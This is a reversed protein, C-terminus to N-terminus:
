EMGRARLAAATIALPLDDGAGTASRTSNPDVLVCEAGALLTLETASEILWNNPILMYAADLYAEAQLLAAFRSANTKGRAGIIQRAWRAFAKDRECIADWAMALLEDHAAKMSEVRAALENLDTM